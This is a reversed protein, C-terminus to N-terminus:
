QSSQLTTVLVQSPVLRMGLGKEGGVAFLIQDSVLLEHSQSTIIMRVILRDYAYTVLNMYLTVFNRAFVRALEYGLAIYM